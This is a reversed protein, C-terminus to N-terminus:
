SLWWLALVVGAILSVATVLSGTVVGVLFGSRWGTRHADYIVEYDDLRISM